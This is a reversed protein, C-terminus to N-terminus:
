PFSRVPATLHPTARRLLRRKSSGAAGPIAKNKRRRELTRTSVGFFAAVEEDTCQMGCLKELESLDIEIARRASFQSACHKSLPV